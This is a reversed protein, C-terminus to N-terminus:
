RKVIVLKKWGSATEAVSNKFTLRYLYVGPAVPQVNWAIRGPGASLQAGLVEVKEGAINFIEIQVKGPAEM